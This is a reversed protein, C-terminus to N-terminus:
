AVQQALRSYTALANDRRVKAHLKEPIGVPM